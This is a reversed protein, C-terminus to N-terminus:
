TMRGFAAETLELSAFADVAITTLKVAVGEGNRLIYRFGFGWYLRAATYMIMDGYSAKLKQHSCEEKFRREYFACIAAPIPRTKYNALYCDDWRMDTVGAVGEGEFIEDNQRFFELQMTYGPPIMNPVPAKSREHMEKFFTHVPLGSRKVKEGMADREERTSRRCLELLLLGKAGQACKARVAEVGAADYGADRDRLLWRHVLRFLSGVTMRAATQTPELRAHHSAPIDVGEPRLDVYSVKETQGKKPTAYGDLRVNYRHGKNYTSEVEGAYWCDDFEVEVRAGVEYRPAASMRLAALIADVGAADYMARFVPCDQYLTQFTGPGYANLRAWQGKGFRQQAAAQVETSTASSFRVVYDEHAQDSARWDSWMLLLGTLVELDSLPVAEVDVDALLEELELDALSVSDTDSNFADWQTAPLSTPAPQIPQTHHAALHALMVDESSPKVGPHMASLVPKGSADVRSSRSRPKQEGDRIKEDRTKPATRRGDASNSSFRVVYDAFSLPLPCAEVLAHAVGFVPKPEDSAAAQAGDAGLQLPLLAPPAHLGKARCQAPRARKATPEQRWLTNELANEPQAHGTGRKEPAMVRAM